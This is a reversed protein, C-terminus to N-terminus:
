ELFPPTVSSSNKQIYDRIEDTVVMKSELCKYFIGVPVAIGANGGGTYENNFKELEPKIEENCIAVNKYLLNNTNFNNDSSNVEPCVFECNPGTRGVASGDPCQKADKTCVVVKSSKGAYYAVGGVVLVGIIIFLAVLGFGKNNKM